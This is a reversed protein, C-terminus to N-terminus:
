HALAEGAPLLVYVEGKHRIDGALAGADDGSGFFIDCRAPGTIASGTDQAIMMRRFPSPLSSCWPLNAAVWFPLGYSWITRDVALSRLATLGIGQGGIPGSCSGFDEQLSFFVYSKNRQMLAFGADGPNQGKARVWQKLAALSMVSEAFEGSEILIKGISTYPHGNRGAYVLRVLRGDTLRVRASGQVQILFVEIRDRLFVLPVPGCADAGFEIAARDFYPTIADLNDPRGLIPATFKSTKTLSGDVIPEYYGTLLGNGHEEACGNSIHCPTFHTEFFERAETRDRPSNRLAEHAIAELYASASAAKRLPLSKAAIAACSLAFVRFAELHDDHEFGGLDAFRMPTLM